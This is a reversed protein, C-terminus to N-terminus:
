AQAKCTGWPAEYTGNDNWRWAPDAFYEFTRDPLTRTIVGKLEDNAVRCDVRHHVTSDRLGLLAAVAEPVPPRIVAVLAGDKLVKFLALSDPRDPDNFQRTYRCQEFEYPM